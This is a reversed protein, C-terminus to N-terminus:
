QDFSPLHVGKVKLIVGYIALRNKLKVLDSVRAISMISFINVFGNELKIPMKKTIVM